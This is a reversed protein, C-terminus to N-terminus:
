LLAQLDKLVYTTRVRGNKFQVTSKLLSALCRGNFFKLNLAVVQEETLNEDTVFGFRWPDLIVGRFVGPIEVSEEKTITGAVRDYAAKAQVPDMTCRFDGSELRLGAHGKAVVELFDRLNQVVRPAAEDLATAFDEDSRAAAEVLRTVHSLTDALNDEGFLQDDPARTLELGFSGRPLATLLLRSEREGARRGRSGVTGHWRDAYDAMVMNQFPELVRGTFNADIGLSGVVPEGSFYLVTRPEKAGPPLAAIEERLEQERHALSRSMLPHDAVVERLKQMELLQVNLFERQSRATPTRM